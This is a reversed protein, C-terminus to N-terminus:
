APPPTMYTFTLSQTDTHGNADRVTAYIIYDSYDDLGQTLTFSNSQSFDQHEVTEGYVPQKETLKCLEFSYEYPELGGKAVAEFTVYYDYFGKHYLSTINVWGIDMPESVTLTLTERSEIGARNKVYYMIEYTGPQDFTHVYTNQESYPQVVEENIYFEYMLPGAYSNALATFTVPTGTTAGLNYDSVLAESQLDIYGYDGAPFETIMGVLYQQILTADLITVKQDNDVDAPYASYDDIHELQAVVRQILTADTIDVGNEHDVDGFTVPPLAACVSIICSSVLMMFALTISLFKTHKKM